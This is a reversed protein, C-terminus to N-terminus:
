NRSRVRICDKYEESLTVTGAENARLLAIMEEDTLGREGGSGYGFLGRVVSEFAGSGIFYTVGAVAAAAGLTSMAGMEAGATAGASAITPGVATPVTAEVALYSSVLEDVTGALAVSSETTVKAAAGLQALANAAEITPGIIEAVAEETALFSTVLEEVTGALAVSSTLGLAETIYTVGSALSDYLSSLSLASQVAGTASAGTSGAINLTLGTTSGSFLLKLLDNMLMQAIIDTMTKLMSQWLNTWIEELDECQGTIVDFLGDSLAKSGQSAFDKIVKQGAKAWTMADKQLEEYGIKVGAFFDNSMLIEKDNIKKLEGDYWKNLIDKNTVFEAYKNYQVLLLEREQAYYGEASAGMDKYM